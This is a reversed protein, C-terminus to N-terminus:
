MSEMRLSLPMGGDIVARVRRRLSEADEGDRAHVPEHVTLGVERYEGLTFESGRTTLERTGTITIPVVAAGEEVALKFAGIKFDGLRGDVSRTGEAFIVVSSGDHLAGRAARLTDHGSKRDGRRLLIQGTLGLFIWGVWPIYM